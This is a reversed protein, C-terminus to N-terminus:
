VLYNLSLVEEHSTLAQTDKPVKDESEVIPLSAAVEATSAKLSPHYVLKLYLYDPAVLKVFVIAQLVKKGFSLTLNMQGDLMIPKQDYTCAKDVPSQLQIAEIGTKGILFDFL